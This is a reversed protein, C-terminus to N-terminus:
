REVDGGGLYRPDPAVYVKVTRGLAGPPAVRNLDFSNVASGVDFSWAFTKDGAVFKVVDGGTVNIYRTDPTIVITRTAAAPAAPDGLLDIRPTVALAPLAAASFVLGAVAPLLFRTNM